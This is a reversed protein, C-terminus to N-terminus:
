GQRQAMAQRVLLSSDRRLQELTDPSLDPRSALVLRVGYDSDGLLGALLEPSLDPRAAVRARVKWVRHRALQELEAASLAPHGAVAVQFRADAHALGYRRLWVPAQPQAVLSLVAETPWGELLGPHALRLLGLAPNALVQAPYDAALRGLVAAPTNPHAAVAARTESSPQKALLALQAATLEPALVAARPSPETEGAM